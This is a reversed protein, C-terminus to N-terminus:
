TKTQIYNRTKSFFLGSIGAVGIAMGPASTVKLLNYRNLVSSDAISEAIKNSINM